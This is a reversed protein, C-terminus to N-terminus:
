NIILNDNEIKLIFEDIIIENKYNKFIIDKKTFFNTIYGWLIEKGISITSLSTLITDNLVENTLCIPLFNNNHIQIIFKIENDLKLILKDEDFLFPIYYELLFKKFEQEPNKIKQNLEKGM